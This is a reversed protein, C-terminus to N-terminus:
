PCFYCNYNSPLHHRFYMRTLAFNRSRLSRSAFDFALWMVLNIVMSTTNKYIQVPVSSVINTAYDNQCIGCLTIICFNINLLLIVSKWCNVETNIKPKIILANTNKESSWSSIWKYKSEVALEFSEFNYLSASISCKQSYINKLWVIKGTVIKRSQNLWLKM